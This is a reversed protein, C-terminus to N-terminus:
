EKYKLIYALANSLIFESDKALGLMMNCRRCLLGRNKNSVHDHDIALRTGLEDVKKCIACVGDQAKLKTDFEEPTINYKAKINHKRYVEPTKAKDCEKCWPSM